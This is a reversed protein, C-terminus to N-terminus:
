CNHSSIVAQVRTTFVDESPGDDRIPASFIGNDTSKHLNLVLRSILTVSICSTITALNGRTIDSGCYYTLINPLNILTMAAFYMAGDQFMINPINRSSLSSRLFKRTKCTRFITLVFIISDYVFVAVWALGHRIAAEATFTNQCDSGQVYITTNNDSLSSAFAGGTLALGIIIMCSLLRKSRGYLAYIRLTLTFSVTIQQLFLLLERVLMYRSCSENSVVPLFDIFLGFINGVLAFYRNVLFFISSLIKPRCWIFRIEEPLTVIHDYILISNAVLVTYLHFLRAFLLTLIITNTGM